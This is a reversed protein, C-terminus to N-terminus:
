PMLLRGHDDGVESAHLAALVAQGAVAGPAADATVTLGALGTLGGAALVTTTAIAAIKNMTLVEPQTPHTM